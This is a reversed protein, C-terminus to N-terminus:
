SSSKGTYRSSGHRAAADDIFQRENGAEIAASLERGFAIYSREWEPQPALTPPAATGIRECYWLAKQRDGVYASLIGLICFDAAQALSWEECQDRVELLDLPARVSPRFQQEMAAVVSRWRDAHQRLLTGRHKIDLFQGLTAITPLPLPRVGM